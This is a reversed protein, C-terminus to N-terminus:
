LEKEEVTWTKRKGRPGTKKWVHLIARGGCNWWETLHAWRRLKRAHEGPHGSKTTVQVGGIKGGGFYLIDFVGFLDQRVKSYPNWPHEVKEAVYGRKRLLALSRTLPSM